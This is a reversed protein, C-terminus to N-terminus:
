RHLCYDDSSHPQREHRLANELSKVDHQGNDNTPVGDTAILILLKQEQIKLQKEHLVQRLVRVIPTPGISCSDNIWHHSNHRISWKSSCCFCSSTRRFKECLADTQRNLLFIDIICTLVMM